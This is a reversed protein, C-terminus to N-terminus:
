AVGSDASPRRKKDKAADADNDLLENIMAEIAVQMRNSIDPSPPANFWKMELAQKQPRLKNLNQAAPTRSFRIVQAREEATLERATRLAARTLDKRMSEASATVNDDDLNRGLEAGVNNYEMSNAVGTILKAGTPSQYFKVLADLDAAALNKSFFAALEDRYIPMLADRHEILFPRIVSMFKQEFEPILEAFATLDPSAQIMQRIMSPMTRDIAEDSNAAEVQLSALIEAKSRPAPPTTGTAPVTDAFSPAAHAASATWGAMAPLVLAIAAVMTLRMMLKM